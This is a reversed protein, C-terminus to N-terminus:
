HWVLEFYVLVNVFFPLLVNCLFILNFTSFCLYLLVYMAKPLYRTWVIKNLKEM